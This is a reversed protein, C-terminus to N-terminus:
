DVWNIALDIYGCAKSKILKSGCALIKKGTLLERDRTNFTVSALEKEHFIVALDAILYVQVGTSLIKTNTKEERYRHLSPRLVTIFTQQPRRKGNIEIRWSPAQEMQQPTLGGSFNKGDLVSDDGDTEVYFKYDSGGILRVDEIDSIIEINLYATDNQIKISKSQSTLIGNNRQGKLLKEDTIVPKNVTHFVVKVQNKGITHVTDKILLIDQERLYLLEREVLELKGAQGNDDYWDSNYAKTLDAKIYSYDEGKDILLIRGGALVPTQNNKEFWDTITTIASGLPLTVRQGGDSINNDKNYAIAVKENKRQVLVSNKAITRISYNLRNESYYKGPVSSNVLLPAGKFLSIHGNDYHGHHTFSNGARFTIFTANDQWSERIYSQGFYQEGFIEMLPLPTPKVNTIKVPYFLSWGWRYSSYYSEVGHLKALDRSYKFFIPNKTVQAIIDIVRRSEDKLDIRPGEDGLPEIKWDPRTAQIHWYGIRELLKFVKEHWLNEETGNLYASLALVVYFARSNIWYNYGEPWAETMSLADVMSYFHATTNKLVQKNINDLALQTMWMQASLTTRGHWLSAENNNLLILYHKLALNLKTNISKKEEPSYEVTHKLVDYAFALQWGNAHHGSANPLVIQFNLSRNKAQMLVKKNKTVLGCAMLALLSQERCPHYKTLELSPFDAASIEGSIFQKTQLLIRANDTLTPLYNYQIPYEFNNALVSSNIFTSNVGLKELLRHFVQHSTLDYHKFLLVFILLTALHAAIGSAIFYYRRFLM